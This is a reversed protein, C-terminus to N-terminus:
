LNGDLKDQAEEDRWREAINAFPEVISYTESETEMFCFTQDLLKFISLLRAM